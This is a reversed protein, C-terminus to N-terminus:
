VLKKCVNLFSLDIMEDDLFVRIGWKLSENKIYEIDDLIVDISFYTKYINKVEEKVWDLDLAPYYQVTLKKKWLYNIWFENKSNKWFINVYTEYKKLIDKLSILDERNLDKIIDLTNM